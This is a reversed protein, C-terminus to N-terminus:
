ESMQWLEMLVKSIAAQDVKKIKDAFSKRNVDDLQKGSPFPRMWWSWLLGAIGYDRHENWCPSEPPYPLVSFFFDRDGLLRAATQPNCPLGLELM